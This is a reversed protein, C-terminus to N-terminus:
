CVVRTGNSSPSSMRSGMVPVGLSIIKPETHKPIGTHADADKAALMAMEVRRKGIERTEFKKISKGTLSNYTEVLSAMDAEEIQNQETLISMSLSESNTTQSFIQVM